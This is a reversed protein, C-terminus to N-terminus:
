GPWYSKNELRHLNSSNNGLDPVSPKRYKIIGIYEISGDRPSESRPHEGRPHRSKGENATAAVAGDGSADNDGRSSSMETRGPAFFQLFTRSDLVVPINFYGRPGIKDFFNRTRDEETDTLIPLKNYCKSPTGWSRPVRPVRESPAIRPFFEWDDGSVFFFRKKWGKVNSPSGKIVNKGRGHPHVIHDRGRWPDQNPDRSPLLLIKDDGQTMSNIEKAPSSHADVEPIEGQDPLEYWPPSEEPPLLPLQNVKDIM